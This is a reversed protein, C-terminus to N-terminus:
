HKTAEAALYADEVNGYCEYELLQAHDELRRYLPMRMTWRRTFVKPDEITAEYSITDQDTSTFREVVRLQDSHFNGAADFWTMANFNRTDVVLTEGEWHGRSDGMWSDVGDAYARGDLYITRYGHNYEYAIGVYTPTQIIEFPFPMYMARPVGPLACRLNPDRTLRQELNERRQKEAWPQYPIDAGEVVSQGAPVGLSGSHDALDWAATNLVQWIGALNPKGDSTRPARYVAVTGARQRTSGPSATQEGAGIAAYLVAGLVGAGAAMVVRWESM